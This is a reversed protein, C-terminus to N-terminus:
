AASRRDDDLDELTLWRARLHAAADPPLPQEPDGLEPLTLWAEGFEQGATWQNPTVVTRLGARTAALLGNRSDEFAVCDRPKLSLRRLAELYADPAPKKAAPLDGAVITDFWDPAETGLTSVLLAHVNAPTTTTVVALRIGAELGERILREVGSRLAVEGASVSHTFLATKTRHLAGVEALCQDERRSDLQLSRIFATIRERGGTVDLLRRYRERDWEWAFGHRAFAGNFAQRHGEETDALTGDVDFLMARLTM